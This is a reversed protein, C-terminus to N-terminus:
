RASRARELAAVLAEVHEPLGPGPDIVAVEGAGVIYTQTGSYTFASPNPALLRRVLPAIREMRGTPWEEM